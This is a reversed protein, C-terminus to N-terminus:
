ARGLGLYGAIITKQIETAGGAVEMLKSERYYRQMDYEMTYGYGGLIQMGRTAVRQATEAAVYKAMAAEKSCPLGRDKKCAALLALQRVAEIEARMDVLMHAIAQFKGIPRGFQQRQKAYDLALEFAGLAAGLGTAGAWIREADLIARAVQWGRNREGLIDATPVRADDFVIECTHVAHHGLKKIPKITIGPTAPDVLFVTFGHQPPAAPDSRTVVIVREAVDAASAFMKTGCVVFHDGDATATTRIATADSGANAETLSFAIVAEGRTIRPLFWRKQAESGAVLLAEGAFVPTQYLAMYVSGSIKALETAVLFLDVWSRGAGGYAPPFQLGMMGLAAFKRYLEWPFEEREEIGRVYERTCERRLFARVTDVMLEQEPTLTYEM